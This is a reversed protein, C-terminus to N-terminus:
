ANLNFILGAKVQSSMAGYEEKIETKEFDALNGALSEKKARLMSAIRNLLLLRSIPVPNEGASAPIGSIHRFQAFVTHSPKVPISVRGNSQLIHVIRLPAVQGNVAISDM